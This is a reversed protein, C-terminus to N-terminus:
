DTRKTFINGIIAGIMGIIAGLICVIVTSELFDLLLETGNSVYFQSYLVSPNTFYVYFPTMYILISTLFLTIVGIIIGNIAAYKYGKKSYYGSILGGILVGLIVIIFNHFILGPLIAILLSIILGKIFASSKISFYNPNLASEKPAKSNIEIGCSSCLISKDENEIGCEPCKIV